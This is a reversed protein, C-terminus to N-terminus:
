TARRYRWSASRTSLGMPAPYPGQKRAFYDRVGKGIAGYSEQPNTDLFAILVTLSVHSLTLKLIFLPFDLAYREIMYLFNRYMYYRRTPSHRAYYRRLFAPVGAVEGLEHQMAADAVRCFSHGAKRLRLSFDFDICDIFFGEDYPGIQDFVKVQVLNGSTISRTSAREDRTSRATM